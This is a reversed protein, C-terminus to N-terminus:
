KHIVSLAQKTYIVLERADPVDATAGTTRHHFRHSYENLQTLEEVLHQCNVLDDDGTAGRIKGIMTGFWDSGEAWRRPYKLQLYEELITRITLAIENLQILFDDPKEIFKTLLAYKTEYARSPLMPLPKAELTVEDGLPSLLFTRSEVGHPSEVARAFDLDHSFVFCQKTQAGIRHIQEITRQQRSRDQSHFPDDFVVISDSLNSDEEVVALFFALALASRDGGSLTNALSLRAPDAADSPSSSIRTGLIDLALQGSPQGGRFDVGDSVIRFEFSFLGLLENIRDSFKALLESSLARLSDNATGKIRRAAAQAEATKALEDYADIVEQRHRNKAVEIEALKSTLSKLDVSEADTKRQEIAVNTASLAENYGAMETAIVQWEDVAQQEAGILEISEGPNADKRGLAAALATHVRTCTDLIENRDRLQPLDVAYDVVDKWWERETEHAIIVEAIASRRSESYAEALATQVKKRLRQQEQLEGSFFSQYTKFIELGNMEQGCHPCTSGRQAQHGKELWDIKLGTSHAELHERIKQEAALAADDLTVELVHSLDPPISPIPVPQLSGRQRISDAKTKSLTETALQKKTAEIQQDVDDVEAVTRFSEVTCDKPLMATLKTNAMQVATTAAKLEQDATDVDRKLAIARDGIVLGYLNRRQNVDIHHGVLVNEAVFREDYIHIAPCDDLNSWVGNRFQIPKSSSPSSLAVVIEPDGTATIRKRGLLYAPEATTMSRLVDCLTSKGSANKAFIINLKSFDGPDGRDCKLTVFKGVHKLTKIRKIMRNFWHPYIQLLSLQVGIYM